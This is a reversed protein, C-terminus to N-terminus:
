PTGEQNEQPFDHSKLWGRYRRWSKKWTGRRRRRSAKYGSKELWQESYGMAIWHEAYRSNGGVPSRFIVFFSLFGLRSWTNYIDIYIVIIYCDTMM